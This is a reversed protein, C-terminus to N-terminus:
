EAGRHWGPLVVGGTRDALDKDWHACVEDYHTKFTKNNAGEQSRIWWCLQAGISGVHQRRQLGGAGALRRWVERVAERSDAKTLGEGYIDTFGRM